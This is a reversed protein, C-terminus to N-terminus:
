CLIFYTQSMEQILPSLMKSMPLLEVESSGRREKKKKQGKSPSVLLSPYLYSFSLRLYTLFNLPVTESNYIFQM